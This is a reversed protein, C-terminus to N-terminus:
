LWGLLRAVSVLALGLILGTLICGALYLLLALACRRVTTVRGDDNMPNDGKSGTGQKVLRPEGSVM